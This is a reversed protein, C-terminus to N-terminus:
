PAGENQIISHNDNRPSFKKSTRLQIPKLDAISFPNGVNGTVLDELDNYDDV